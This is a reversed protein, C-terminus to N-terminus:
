QLPLDLAIATIVINQKYVFDPEAQNITYYVGRWLIQMDAIVFKDDRYRVDFKFVPNLREQSAQLNRSAKLQYVTASTAWYLVKVPYSGGSGDDTDQFKYIEIKQNLLGSTPKNM